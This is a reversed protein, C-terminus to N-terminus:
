SDFWLRYWKVLSCTASARPEVTDMESIGSPFSLSQWGVECNLGHDTKDAQGVGSVWCQCGLDFDIIENKSSYIYKLAVLISFGDM